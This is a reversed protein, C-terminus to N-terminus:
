ACVSRPLESRPYSAAPLSAAICSGGTGACGTTSFSGTCCLVPQGLHRSRRAALSTCLRVAAADRTRPARRSAGASEAQPLGVIHTAHNGLYLSKRGTEPHTRVLPHDVEPLSPDFAPRFAVRLGAIRRKTASPCRTTPWRRTPSNPTAALGAEPPPVEVAYLLTLSRRRRGTPSTPTGITIRRRRFGSRRIAPPTSTRCACARRATTESEGRERAM